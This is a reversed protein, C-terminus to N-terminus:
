DFPLIVIWKCSPEAIVKIPTDLRSLLKKVVCQAVTPWRRLGAGAERDKDFFEPGGGIVYGVSLVRPCGAEAIL